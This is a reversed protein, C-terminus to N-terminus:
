LMLLPEDLGATEEGLVVLQVLFYGLQCGESATMSRGYRSQHAGHNEDVPRIREQLWEHVLINKHFSIHDVGFCHKTPM